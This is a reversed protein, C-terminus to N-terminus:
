YGTFKRIDEPRFRLNGGIRYGKLTGKDMQRYLSSLSINLAQCVQKATMMPEINNMKNLKNTLHGFLLLGDAKTYSM